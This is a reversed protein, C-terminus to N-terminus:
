IMLKQILLLNHFEIFNFITSEQTVHDAYRVLVPIDFEVEKTKYVFAPIGQTMVVSKFHFTDHYLYM